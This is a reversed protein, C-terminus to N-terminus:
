KKNPFQTSVNEFQILGKNTQEVELKEGYKKPQMKSLIWKRADVRLRDRQIVEHNTVEKGDELIIIDDQQSDAIDLIDEFISEARAECARTYQALRSKNDDLWNFFTTHHPTDKDKLVSRLSRGKTIEGCITDILETRQEETYEM